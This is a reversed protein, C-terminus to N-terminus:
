WYVSQRRFLLKGDTDLIIYFPFIIKNETKRNGMSYKMTDAEKELPKFKFLHRKEGHSITAHSLWVHIICNLREAIPYTLTKPILEKTRSVYATLHYCLM